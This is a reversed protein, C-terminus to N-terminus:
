SLSPKSIGRFAGGMISWCSSWHGRGGGGNRATYTTRPRLPRELTIAWSRVCRPHEVTRLLDAFWAVSHTERSWPQPSGLTDWPLALTPLHQREASELAALIAPLIRRDKLKMSLMSMLTGAMMRHATQPRASTLTQGAGQEANLAAIASTSSRECAAGYAHSALPSESAYRAM